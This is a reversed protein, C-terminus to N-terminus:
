IIADLLPGKNTTELEYTANAYREVMWLSLHELTITAALYADEDVEDTEEQEHSITATMATSHNVTATMARAQSNNENSMQLYSQVHQRMFCDSGPTQVVAANASSVDPGAYRM